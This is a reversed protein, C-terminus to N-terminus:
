DNNPHTWGARPLISAILDVLKRAIEEVQKSDINHYRLRVAFGDKTFYLSWTTDQAEAGLDRLIDVGGFLHKIDIVTELDAPVMPATPCITVLDFGRAGISVDIWSSDNLLEDARGQSIMMRFSCSCRRLEDLAGKHNPREEYQRVSYACDREMAMDM